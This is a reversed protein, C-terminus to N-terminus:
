DKHLAKHLETYVETYNLGAVWEASRLDSFETALEDAVRAAEGATMKFPAEQAQRTTRGHRRRRLRVYHLASNPDGTRWPQTVIRLRAILVMPNNEFKNGGTNDSAEKSAEQAGTALNNTWAKNVARAVVVPDLGLNELLLAILLRHAEALSYLRRGEQGHLPAPLGLSALRKLRSRMAGRQLSEGIDLARGLSQELLGYGYYGTSFAM